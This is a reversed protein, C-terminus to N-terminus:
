LMLIRKMSRLISRVFITGRSRDAEKVEALVDSINSWYFREKGSLEEKSQKDEFEYECIRMAFKGADTDNM